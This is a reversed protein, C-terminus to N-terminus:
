NELVFLRLLNLANLAALQTNLARDYRFHFVKATVKERNGVAVWVTGVPAEPGGDPGVYGTTAVAYDAPIRALVGRVMATAVSESVVGADILDSSVGLASSKVAAAYSVVSGLFYHSSGPVSTIQQAIMGGTCSEATALTIGRSAFLRGIYAELSIDEAVITIDAVLLCLSEFFTDILSPEGTLRLRVTGFHPLYALKLSPPMSAEFEVLRDAIVSEGAGITYVTRHAIPALVFRSALRPLVEHEMLGKMEIPVGPMSVIVAGDKEFWMGPATGIRNFLVTCVDPVEAQRMNREALPGSRRFVKEFLYQVHSLVAADVVLRGGFYEALLPKTIDDATPGLGGTILVISSSAIEADLASVIASRDDGVAVRRHVWIGMENLKQAIWASNTDIVQGILLEDGITIISARIKEM